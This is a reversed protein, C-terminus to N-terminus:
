HLGGVLARRRGISCGAVYTAGAVLTAAGATWGETWTLLEPHDTHLQLWAYGVMLLPAWTLDGALPAVCAAVAALWTFAIATGPDPTALMGVVLPVAGAAAVLLLYRLLDHVGLLRPSRSSLEPCRDTLVGCLLAGSLAAAIELVDVPLSVLPVQWTDDDGITVVAAATVLVTVVLRRIGWVEFVARM